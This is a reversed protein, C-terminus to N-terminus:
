RPVVVAQRPKADLFGRNAPNRKVQARNSNSFYTLGAYGPTRTYFGSQMIDERPGTHDLGFVHGFEHALHALPNAAGWTTEDYPYSLGNSWGYLAWLDDGDMWAGGFNGGVRGDARTTPFSVVRVNPDFNSVGLKRYVENKVNGLRHWRRDSHIGDATNIYWAPNHDAYVVDVVHSTLFFTGGFQEYWYRQLDLAARYIAVYERREFRQGKEIFYVFRVYKRNVAELEVEIGEELGEPPSDPNNTPSDTPTSGCAALLLLCVVAFVSLVRSSTRM